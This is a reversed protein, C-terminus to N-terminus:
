VNSGYIKTNNKGTYYTDFKELFHKPRLVMADVPIREQSFLTQMADNIEEKNYENKIETFLNRENFNLNKINTPQKLYHQRCSSWNELFVSEAYQTKNNINNDNNNTNTQHENSTQKINTQQENSTRKDQYNDYKCVTIVTTKNNTKYDIMEDLKLLDFFRKVRGRSWKWRKSWTELSKISQGRKVTFLTNKIMVKQESHNVTLLIDFWAELKSFERKEQWLWHCQIKRNISIWGKAM